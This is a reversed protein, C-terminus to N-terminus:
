PMIRYDILEEDETQLGANNRRMVFGVGPAFYVFQQGGAV